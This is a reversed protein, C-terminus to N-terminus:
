CPANGKLTAPAKACIDRFYDRNKNNLSDILATVGQEEIIERFEHKKISVYTIGKFRVDVASWNGESTRKILLDLHLDPIIPSEMLVQVWGMTGGKNVAVDVVEFVQGGYNELGEFAYRLLTNDVAAVLAQKNAATLGKFRTKGILASTTSSTDWLSKVNADIFRNYASPDLLYDAQRTSLQETVVSFLPVFRSEVRQEETDLSQPAASAVVVSSTLLMTIAWLFRITLNTRTMMSHKLESILGSFQQVSRMNFWYHM